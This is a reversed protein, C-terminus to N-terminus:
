VDTTELSSSFYAINLRKLKSNRIMKRDSESKIQKFEDGHDQEIPEYDSLTEINAISLRPQRNHRIKVSNQGQLNYLGISIINLFKTRFITDQFILHYFLKVTM